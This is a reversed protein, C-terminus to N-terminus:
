RNSESVNLYLTRYNLWNNFEEALMPEAYLYGQATDCNANALFLKQEITEVGEAIVEKHLAKALQIISLVIIEDDNENHIDRIFSQDIKLKNIPLRKLYSLSSYGTGFDDISIKVGLSKLKQMIKIVFEPQHMVLRETLELELLHGPIEAKVLAQQIFEAFNQDWFQRSSINVAITFPKLGSDLWVKMQQLANTLVWHDIKVILGNSEAIPIFEDPTPNALEANKWRLLVEVGVLEETILSIQPQYVLSFQDFQIADHLASEIAMRRLVLNEMQHTFFRFNNRGNAKAQYMATDANKLLSPYDNGDEPYIAIGISVSIHLSKDQVCYPESITALIMNAKAIM